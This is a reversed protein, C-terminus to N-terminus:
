SELITRVTERTSFRVPDTAPSGIETEYEEVTRRAERDDEIRSTNLAGAVVEAPRVPDCLSEYLEGFAGPSPLSTDSFGHVSKRNSEHCLVLKDPMSGHLIGCTVGSYSPHIISGQGEVFLYDHESGKEVIMEEVAGAVFDSVVRDIPTGWGEVIIGTQGTPIVAADYGMERATGCLEMTSTMKGISCDTGVTLIVEADVDAASGDSVGLEDPPNRVDWIDCGNEEALERFEADDNLFTHLGSVVDWGRELATTVDDRWSSDFNGGMVSIGIILVDASDIESAGEVVPIEGLDDLFDDATAGANERDLVGAIDYDSYRMVGLATKARDPFHDHALVVARM